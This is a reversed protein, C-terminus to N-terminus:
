AKLRHSPLRPIGRRGRRKKNHAQPSPPRSPWAPPEPVYPSLALWMQNTYRMLKEADESYRRFEQILDKGQLPKARPNQMNLSAEAWHRVAGRHVGSMVVLPAHIANNRRHRLNNDIENLVDLIDDAQSATLMRHAPLVSKEATVVARFMKRQMIDSDLSHWLAQGVWANPCRLILTFMSSLNHHLQNWANALRGLEAYYPRLADRATSATLLKYSYQKGTVDRITMVPTRKPMVSLLSDFSSISRRKSAASRPARIAPGLCM